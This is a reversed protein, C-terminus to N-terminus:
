SRENLNPPNDWPKAPLPKLVDQSLRLWDFPFLLGAFDSDM